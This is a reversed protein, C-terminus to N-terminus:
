KSDEKRRCTAALKYNSQGIELGLWLPTRQRTMRTGGRASKRIEKLRCSSGRCRCTPDSFTLRRHSSDPARGLRLSRHSCCTPRAGSAGAAWGKLVHTYITTTEWSSRFPAFIM